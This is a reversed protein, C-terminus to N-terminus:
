QKCQHKISTKCAMELCVQTQFLDRFLDTVFSNIETKKVISLM